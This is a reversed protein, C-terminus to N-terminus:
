CLNRRRSTRSKHRLHNGSTRGSAADYLRLEERIQAYNDMPDSQDMPAPEVLHVLLRTREVHRLFDHGLGIGAHAGEILGPIDALVFEHDYGLSVVGLNPYKTTFPYDAIEPTARSVRSLLTSKGANPKGILGVDAIMKLELQIERYEGPQGEESERPARNTPTAFRTNGRGGRGGKAIVVSEGHLQLDKLLHGHKLDTILTGPPVLIVTSKGCRGTCGSGMGHQGRDSNWHRHGVLNGLSGKIKTPRFSSTAATVATVVMRAVERSTSKEGFAPAAMAAMVLAVICLSVIRLCVEVVKGFGILALLGNFWCLVIASQWVGILRHDEIL